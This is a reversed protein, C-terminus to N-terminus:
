GCRVLRLLWLTGFATRFSRRHHGKLSRRRGSDPCARRGEKWEAIQVMALVQQIGAAVDKAEAVSLGLREPRLEPRDIRAIEHIDRKGNADNVFVVQVTMRIM